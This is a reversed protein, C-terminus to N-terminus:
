EITPNNTKWICDACRPDGNTKKHQTYDCERSMKNEIEIVRQQVTWVGADDTAPMFGDKVELMPVYPKHNWCGNRDAAVGRQTPTTMLQREKEDANM